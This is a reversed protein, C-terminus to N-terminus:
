RTDRETAVSEAGADARTTSLSRLHLMVGSRMLLWGRRQHELDTTHDHPDDPDESQEERDHAEASSSSGTEEEEDDRDGADQEPM